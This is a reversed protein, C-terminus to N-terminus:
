YRIFFRRKSYAHLAIVLGMVLNYLSSTISLTSNMIGAVVNNILDKSFFKQPDIMDFARSTDLSYPLMSLNSNVHHELEKIRTSLNELYVPAVDILDLINKSIQPILYRIMLIITVNVIGKFFAMISPAINDTNSSIRYFLITVVAVFIAYLSIKFYPNDKWFSKM